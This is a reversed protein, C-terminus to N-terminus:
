SSVSCVGAQKQIFGADGRDARSAGIGVLRCGPHVFLDGAVPGFRFVGFVLSRPYYTRRAASLLFTVHRVVDDVEVLLPDTIVGAPVAAPHLDSGVSLDIASRRADNMVFCDLEQKTAM